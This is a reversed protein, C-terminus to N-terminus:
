NITKCAKTNLHVCKFSPISMLEGFVNRNNNQILVFVSFNGSNRIIFVNLIAIFHLTITQSISGYAM